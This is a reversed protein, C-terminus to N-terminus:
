EAVYLLAPINQNNQSESKYKAEIEYPKINSM